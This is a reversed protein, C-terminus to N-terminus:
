VAIRREEKYKWLYGGASKSLGSLCNTISKRGISTTKSAVTASEFENLLNNYKDFQLVARNSIHWNKAAEIKLPYDNSEKYKWIYGYASNLKNKCYAIINAVDRDKIFSSGEYEKIFIGNLSYQLIPKRRKIAGKMVTEQSRKVGKRAAALELIKKKYEPNKYRILMIQRQHEKQEQTWERSKVCELLRAKEKDSIKRGKLSKSRRKRTEESVKWGCNGDGGLTANYGNKYTNYKVIYYKELLNLTEDLIENNSASFSLIPNMEFNDKGYKEFAKRLITCTDFKGFHENYRRQYNNTRGIYMKGNVRNTISYIWGRIEKKKAM